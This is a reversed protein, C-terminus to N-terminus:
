YGIMFVKGLMDGIGGFGRIPEEKIEKRNTREIDVAATHRGEASKRGRIRVNRPHFEIVIM